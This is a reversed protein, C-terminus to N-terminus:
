RGQAVAHLAPEDATPPGSKGHDLGLGERVVKIFIDELPMASHSFAEIDVGQEM